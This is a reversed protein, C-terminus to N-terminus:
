GGGARLADRLSEQGIGAADIRVSAQRGGAGSVRALFWAPTAPSFGLRAKGDMGVATIGKGCGLRGCQRQLSIRNELLHVARDFTRCAKRDEFSLGFKEVAANSIAKVEHQAFKDSLLQRAVHFREMVTQLNPVRCNLYLTLMYDKLGISPTWKVLVNRKGFDNTEAVSRLLDFCANCSPNLFLVLTQSRDGPGLLLDNDVDFAIEDPAPPPAPTDNVLAALREEAKRMEPKLLPNDAEFRLHELMLAQVKEDSFLKKLPEGVDKDEALGPQALTLLAALLTM